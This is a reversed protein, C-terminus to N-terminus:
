SQTEKQQTELKVIPLFVFIGWVMLVALRYYDPAYLVWAAIGLMFVMATMTMVRPTIIDLALALMAEPTKLNM